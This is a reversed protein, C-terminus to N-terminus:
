RIKSPQAAVYLAVETRSRPQMLHNSLGAWTRSLDRLPSFFVVNRSDTCTKYSASDREGRNERTSKWKTGTQWGGENKEGGCLMRQTCVCDDFITSFNFVSQFNTNRVGARSLTLTVRFKWLEGGIGRLPARIRNVTRSDFEFELDVTVRRRFIARFSAYILKRINNKTAGDSKIM